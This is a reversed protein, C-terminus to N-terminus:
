VQSRDVPLYGRSEQAAPHQSANVRAAQGM